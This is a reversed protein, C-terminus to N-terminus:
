GIKKLRHLLDLSNIVIKKEDIDILKDNKFENLTRSVSEKTTSILDALEQRTLPLEFSNSNYLEAFFVLIGAIRGPVQKHSLNILKDFIFIGQESINKMIHLAFSGNEKVIAKFINIDTYIIDCDMLATATYDYQNKSFTSLLGVYKGAGSINIIVNKNNDCEKFIKVLGTKIFVIHSIPMDQRFITDHKKFKVVYSFENIKAVQENNLEDFTSILCEPTDM